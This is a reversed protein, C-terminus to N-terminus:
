QTVNVDNVWKSWICPRYITGPVRSQAPGIYASLGSGTKMFSPDISKEHKAGELSDLRRESVPAFRKQVTLTRLFPDELHRRTLRKSPPRTKVIDPSVGASSSTEKTCKLDGRKKAFLTYTAKAEKRFTDLEEAAKELRELKCKCKCAPLGDKPTM